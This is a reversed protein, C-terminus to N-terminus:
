TACMRLVVYFEAVLPAYYAYYLCISLLPPSARELPRVTVFLDGGAGRPNASTATIPELHDRTDPQSLDSSPRLLMREHAQRHYRAM